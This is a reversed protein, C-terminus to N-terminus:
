ATGGSQCLLEVQDFLRRSACGDPICYGSLFNQYQNIASARFIEDSLLRNVVQTLETSNTVRISAGLDGYSFPLSTPEVTIVPLKFLMAELGATSCQTIFIDAGSLTDYLSVQGYRIVKCNPYGETLQQYRAVLSTESPHLILILFLDPNSALVNLVMPVITNMNTGTAYAVIKKSPDINLMQCLKPKDCWNQTFIPDFRPSGIVSVRSEPYGYKQYWRQVEDGWVFKKTATIPIHCFLDRDLILGHQLTFSPIRNARAVLNLASDMWVISSISLVAGINFEEILSESRM